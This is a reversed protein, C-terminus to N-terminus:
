GKEGDWPVMSVSYTIGKELADQGLAFVFLAPVLVVVSAAFAFGAQEVTLGLFDRYLYDSLFIDDYSLNGSLYQLLHAETNARGCTGTGYSSDIAFLNYQKM